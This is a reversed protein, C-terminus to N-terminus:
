ASNAFTTQRLQVSHFDRRSLVTFAKEQSVTGLKHQIDCIQTSYAVKYLIKTLFISNCVITIKKTARLEILLKTRPEQSNTKSTFLIPRSTAEKAWSPRKDECEGSNDPKHVTYKTRSVRKTNSSLRLPNGKIKRVETTRFPRPGVDLFMSDIEEKKRLDQTCEMYVARWLKAM